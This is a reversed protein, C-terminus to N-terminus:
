TMVVGDPFKVADGDVSEARATDDSDVFEVMAILVDDPELIEVSAVVEAFAVIGDNILSTAGEPTGVDGVLKVSRDVGNDDTSNAENFEDDTAGQLEGVGELLTLELVAVAANDETVGIETFEDEAVLAVEPEPLDVTAFVVKVEEPPIEEGDEVRGIGELLRVDVVALTSEDKTGGLGAFEVAGASVLKLVLLKVFIVDDVLVNKSIDVLVEAVEEPKGVGEILTVLLKSVCIDVPIGRGTSFEVTVESNPKLTADMPLTVADRFEVRAEENVVPLRVLMGDAVDKTEIFTVALSVRETAVGLKDSFAVVVVIAIAVPFEVDM